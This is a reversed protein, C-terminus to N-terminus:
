MEGVNRKHGESFEHSSLTFRQIRAQSKIDFDSKSNQCQPKESCAHSATKLLILTCHLVSVLCQLAQSLM